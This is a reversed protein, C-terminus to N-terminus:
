KWWDADDKAEIASVLSAVLDKNANELEKNKDNLSQDLKLRGGSIPGYKVEFDPNAWYPNGDETWGIAELSGDTYMDSVRFFIKYIKEYILAKLGEPYSVEMEAAIYKGFSNKATAKIFYNVYINTLEEIQRNYFLEEAEPELHICQQSHDAWAEILDIFQEKGM